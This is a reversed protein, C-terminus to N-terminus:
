APDNIYVTGDWSELATVLIPRIVSWELGGNGCGLCPIAISTTDSSNLTSYSKAALNVIWELQTPNSWHNKTAAHWINKGRENFPTIIIEGPYLYGWKCKQIYVRQSRPYQQAFLKALGKGSVGVCNVPNVLVDAPCDFIDGLPLFTAM